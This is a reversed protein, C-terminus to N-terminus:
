GLLAGPARHRAARRSFTSRVLAVESSLYEALSGVPSGRKFASYRIWVLASFASSCFVLEAASFVGLASEQVYDMLLHVGWFVFPVALRSAVSAQGVVIAAVPSHLLSKWQGEPHILQDLHMLGSIGNTSIYDKLGFFHDVDIFVGFLLGVFADNRDLSMLQILLLSAILHTTALM